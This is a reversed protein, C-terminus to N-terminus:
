QLLQKWTQKNVVGTTRVSHKGQFSRLANETRGGFNDSHDPQHGNATLLVQAARVAEGRSGSSIEPALLPWLDAGVMGSEDVRTGYCPTSRVQKASIFKEVAAQTAADFTGNVKLTAGNARLLHQAATVKPGSEGPKLLPWNVPQVVEQGLAAGVAERLEPLRGYLVEGPCETSMYDRHGYIESAAIGYQTCIYSCLAVLGDWLEGTVDTDTYTGENEIGQSGSNANGAHIGKVYSTGGELHGLSGTRGETLYGGRSNTFNQGTDGWGNSDMHYNQISRSIAFAAEQSLDDTNPTATHHVVIFTPAEEFTEITGNPERAGWDTVSAITPAQQAKKAPNAYAAPAATATAGLASFASVALGGQLVVRRRLGSTLDM